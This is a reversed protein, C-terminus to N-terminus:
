MEKTDVNTDASQAIGLTFMADADKHRERLAVALVDGYSRAIEELTHKTLPEGEYEIAVKVEHIRFKSLRERLSTM